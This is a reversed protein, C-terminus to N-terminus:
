PNNRSNQYNEGGPSTDSAFSLEGVQEISNGFLSEAASFAAGPSVPERSQFMLAMELAPQWGVSQFYHIGELLQAGQRQYWRVRRRATEAAETSELAAVEPKEVEFVLLPIGKDTFVMETIKGYVAAGVGQGRLNDRTALYMLYAAGSAEHVECYAFGVVYNSDVENVAAFLLREPESPGDGLSLENLLRVWWSLRMQENPPFATQYLDVM